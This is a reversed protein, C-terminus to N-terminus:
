SLYTSSCYITKGEIEVLEDVFELGLRRQMSKNPTDSVANGWRETLFGILFIYSPNRFVSGISLLKKENFLHHILCIPDGQLNIHLKLFAINACAVLRICKLILNM